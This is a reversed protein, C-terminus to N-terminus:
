SQFTQRKKKQYKHLLKFHFNCYFGFQIEIFLKILLFKLRLCGYPVNKKRQQTLRQNSYFCLKLVQFSNQCNLENKERVIKWELMNQSSVRHENRVGLGLQKEFHKMSSFGAFLSSSSLNRAELTMPSSSISTIVKSVNNKKTISDNFTTQISHLKLTGNPHFSFLNQNLQLGNSSTDFGKKSNSSYASNMRLKEESDVGLFLTILNSRHFPKSATIEEQNSELHFLGDDPNAQHQNLEQKELGSTQKIRSLPYISLTKLSTEINYSKYILDLLKNEQCQNSEQCQNIFQTSNQSSSLSIYEPGAPHIFYLHTTGKSTTVSIWRDDYSFSLDEVHATTFGRELKYLCKPIQNVHQDSTSEWVLFSNSSSSCTILLSKNSNFKLNSIMNDHAKWHSLTNLTTLDSIMVYGPHESKNNQDSTPTPLSLPPIHMYSQYANIGLEGIVKAGILLEKGVYAVAKQVMQSTSKEIGNKYKPKITTAFAVNHMGLAFSTSCVDSVTHLLM